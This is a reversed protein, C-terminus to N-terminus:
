KEQTIIIVCAKCGLTLTIVLLYVLSGHSRNIHIKFNDLVTKVYRDGILFSLFIQFYAYLTSNFILKWHM